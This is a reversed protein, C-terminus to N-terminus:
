AADHGGGPLVIRASVELRTGEPFDKAYARYGDGSTFGSATKGGERVWFLGDVNPRRSAVLVITREPEEASLTETGSHRLCKHESARAQIRNYEERNEYGYISTESCGQHTCRLSTIRERPM